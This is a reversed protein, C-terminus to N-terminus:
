ARSRALRTAEKAADHADDARAFFRARARPESWYYVAVSKRRVDAPCNLPESHGHFSHASTEFLVARNWLPAIKKVPRTCARDWLEFHGGWEEQWGETCYVILNLRRALGSQPHRENDLHVGLFGGRQTVHLGGGYLAADPQLRDIGTIWECLKAATQSSLAAIFNRCALPMAEVRNCASKGREDIDDYRVWADPSVCDFGAAVARLTAEPAFNDLVLHPFPEALMFEKQIM